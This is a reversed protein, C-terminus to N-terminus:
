LQAEAVVLGQNLAEIQGKNLALYGLIMEELNVKEQEEPLGLFSCLGDLRVLLRTTRMAAEEHIITIGPGLSEKWTPDVTVWRHADVLEEIDGALLVRANALVVLSDCIKELDSVQHSSILVSNGDAAAAEMLTQMLQHRSLPDLNAFPEDLVLLRPHKALALVIAVHAKQGGSLKRTQRDLPIDLKRLYAEAYPVDFTPNLEQGFRLMERVSFTPYLAKEQGVFAIQPLLEALHTQPSLGLVELVGSNPRLLGVMLAMLTTKGAGNHGVLGTIRGEPLSFSCDKLAWTKGYAKSLGRAELVTSM